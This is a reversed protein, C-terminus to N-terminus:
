GAQKFDKEAEQFWGKSATGAAPASREQEPPRSPQPWASAIIALTLVALGGILVMFPITSLWLRPSEPQTRPKLGSARRVARRRVLAEVYDEARVWSRPPPRSAVDDKKMGAWTPLERKPAIAQVAGMRGASGHGRGDARVGGAVRARNTSSSSVVLRTM